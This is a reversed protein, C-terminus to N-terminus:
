PRAPLSYQVRHSRPKAETSNDRGLTVRSVDETSDDHGLRILNGDVVEGIGDFESHHSTTAQAIRSVHAIGSVHAMGSLHAIRSVHLGALDRTRSHCPEAYDEYATPTSACRTCIHSALGDLSHRVSPPCVM